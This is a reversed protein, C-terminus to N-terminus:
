RRVARVSLVLAVILLTLLGLEIMSNVFGGQTEKALKPLEATLVLIRRTVAILGVVLFPEPQLTHQRFSVQVTYLVEVFIIVLLIRDLVFVINESLTSAAVYRLLYVAETALLALATVALLRRSTQDVDGIPVTMAADTFMGGFKVGLDIKLLDGERLVRRPSPIGHVIEENISTCLTGPFGYLGKFAPTAGDHSRIFDEAVRDLDATSVGPRARERVLAMTEALIRGGEAMIEIERPSKLQIM